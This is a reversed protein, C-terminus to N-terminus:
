LPDVGAADGAKCVRCRGGEAFLMAGIMVAGAECDWSAQGIGTTAAFGGDETM